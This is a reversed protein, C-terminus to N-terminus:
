HPVGLGRPDPGEEVKMQPRTKGVRYMETRDRMPSSVLEAEQCQAQAGSKPGHGEQRNMVWETISMTVDEVSDEENGGRVEVGHNFQCTM